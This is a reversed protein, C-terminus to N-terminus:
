KNWKEKKETRPLGRIVQVASVSTYGSSSSYM